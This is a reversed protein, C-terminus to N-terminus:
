AERLLVAPATQTVRRTGLWGAVVLLTFGASPVVLWLLGHPAWSVGLASYVFVSGLEAGAAALVGSLGGLLAFESLQAARAQARSAGMVRVLAGERIREDLTSNVSVWLVVLGGALVFVLVLNVATTARELVTRIQKLLADVQFLTIGPFQRVLERGLGAQEPGIRLSTLIARPMADLTGPNFIMYFNPKFSDWQVTRLSAVRAEITQDNITFGLVDNVQIDLEAAVEAEVSVVTEGDGMAHWQGDIIRNDAALQSAETLSLDRELAEPLDQEKSVLERVPQGNIETLRGRSVPYLPSAPISERDLVSQFEAAEDPMINLVFYNPTDVPLQDQWRGVLEGRVLWLLSMAMLTLSFALLQAAAAKPQRALHLIGFRWTQGGWGRAAGLSRLLGVALVALLAIAAVGGGALVLTLQWDGTYLVMLGGLAVVATLYSVWLAIPTTGLDQRLVRLPPVDRLRLIPGAGFGIAVALGTAVGMFIPKIGAGPLEGPFMAALVGILTFQAFFGIILGFTVGLVTLGGLQILHVKLVNAGSMGFTRLLATSAQHRQGYRNAGMAVGVGAVIIALLSGLRLYRTAREMADGFANGGEGGSRLRQQPELSDELAAKFEPWRPGDFIQYYRVRAGPRIVQAAALDAENMLVRPQLSYFGGGRDPEFSLIATISLEVAGVELSDGVKLALDSALQPDIWTEGPAPIAGAAPREDGYPEDAIRPEGKLPWGPQVVKVSSLRFDEVSAVVSPFQIWRNTALGLAAAQNLIDDSVADTDRLMLDGGILEAAQSQMAREVRDVLFGIASASAVAVSLALVLLGADGSRWDRRLLKLALALM